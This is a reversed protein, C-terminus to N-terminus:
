VEEWTQETVDRWVSVNKEGFKDQLYKKLKKIGSKSESVRINLEEPNCQILAWPIEIKIDYDM